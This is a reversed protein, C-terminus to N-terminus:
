FIEKILFIKTLGDHKLTLYFIHKMLHLLTNLIVSTFREDVKIISQIFATYIQNFIPTNESPDRDLFYKLIKLLNIKSSKSLTPDSWSWKLYIMSDDKDIPLTSGIYSAKLKIKNDESSIIYYPDLDSIPEKIDFKSNILANITDKYKIELFESQIIANAIYDDNFNDM